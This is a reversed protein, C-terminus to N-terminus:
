DRLLKSAISRLSFPRPRLGIAHHDTVATAGHGDATAVFGGGPSWAQAPLGKAFAREEDTMAAQIPLDDPDFPRESVPVAVKPRAYAPAGVLRPLAIHQEDISV